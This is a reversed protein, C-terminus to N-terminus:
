ISSLHLAIDKIKEDTEEEIQEREKTYAYLTDGEIVM